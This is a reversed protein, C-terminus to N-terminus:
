DFWNIFTWFIFIIIAICVITFYIMFFNELDTTYVPLKFSVKDGINKSSYTNYEVVIEKNGSIKFDMNFCPDGEKIYKNQVIGTDTITKGQKEKIIHAGYFFPLFAIFICYYKLFTKAKM